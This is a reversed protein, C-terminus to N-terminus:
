GEYSDLLMIHTKPSCQLAPVYVSPLNYDNQSIIIKCMATSNRRIFIFVCRQAYIGVDGEIGTELNQPKEEARFHM